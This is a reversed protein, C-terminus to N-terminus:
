QKKNKKTQTSMSSLRSFEGALQKLFLQIPTEPVLSCDANAIVSATPLAFTSMQALRRACWFSERLVRLLAKETSEALVKLFMARNVVILRLYIMPYLFFGDSRWFNKHWILTFVFASSSEEVFALIQLQMWECLLFEAARCLWTPSLLNCTKHASSRWAFDRQVNHTVTSCHWCWKHCFQQLCSKWSVVATPNVCLWWVARM